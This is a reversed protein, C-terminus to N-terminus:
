KQDNCFKNESKLLMEIIATKSKNEEILPKNQKQFLETIEENTKRRGNTQLIPLKKLSM